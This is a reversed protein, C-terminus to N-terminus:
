GVFLLRVLVEVLIEIQHLICIQPYESSWIIGKLLSVVYGYLTLLRSRIASPGLFVFRGGWGKCGWNELLSYFLSSLM